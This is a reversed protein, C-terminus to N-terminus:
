FECAALLMRNVGPEVARLYAGSDRHWLDRLTQLHEEPLEDPRAEVAPDYPLELTMMAPRSGDAYVLGFGCWQGLSGPCIAYTHRLRRLGEGLETVRLRYPRRDLATMAEWMARALPTSQPGDADLEALAWHLSVIKAPRWALIFDRLACSEPESWPAPGPPELGDASWNYECNRNLDVGRANYRSRRAYGDPNALTVIATPARLQGTAAFRAQFDELLLITAVEDGHMGGILLTGGLGGPALAAGGHLWAHIKRGEVTEGLCINGPAIEQM